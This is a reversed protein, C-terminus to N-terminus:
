SRFHLRMIPRAAVQRAVTEFGLREFTTAYGTSSSSPTLDADLPYVELAPAGARRATDIAATILAAAVGRKRHGTRVYCCSICWVPADDVRRLRWNRDLGPVADRPTLQCWGVPLEADFALLGPPPGQAVVRRFEAKNTAPSENRYQGGIRPYM